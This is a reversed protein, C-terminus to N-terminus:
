CQLPQPLLVLYPVIAYLLPWVVVTCRFVNLPGFRKVVIPFLVIQCAMSYLAQISLMTGITKSSLAFGGTFQFPLSAAEDSVPSSLFIPMLQDFSIAHYALLGYTIIILVIQKTFAKKSGRECTQATTPLEARELAESTRPTNENTRYAPPPDQADLHEKDFVYMGAEAEKGKFMRVPREMDNDARRCVVRIARLIANGAKIGYDERHKKDPHTEQLFLVGTTIGFLLIVTCVLNPLLFPFTNFISNQDFYTPFHICPQALIGGLAPGLISRLINIYEQRGHM